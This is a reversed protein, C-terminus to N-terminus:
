IGKHLQYRFQKTETGGRAEYTRRTGCNWFFYFQDRGVCNAVVFGSEVTSLDCVVNILLGGCIILEHYQCDIPDEM